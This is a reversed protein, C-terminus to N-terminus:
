NGNRWKKFAFRKDRYIRKDAENYNKGENFNHGYAKGPKWSKRKSVYTEDNEEEDDEEEEDEEEDNDYNSTGDVEQTDGEESHYLERQDSPARSRDRVRRRRNRGRQPRRFRFRRGRGPEDPPFVVRRWYFRVLGKHHQHCEPGHCPQRQGPQIIKNMVPRPPFGEQTGLNLFSGGGGGNDDYDLPDVRRMGPSSASAYMDSRSPHSPPLYVAHSKVRQVVYKKSSPVVYTAVKPTAALVEGVAPSDHSEASNLYITKPSAATGRVVYPSQATPPSYMPGFSDYDYDFDPYAYKERDRYFPDNYDEDLRRKTDTKKKKKKTAKTIKKTSLPLSTPPSTPASTPSLTGSFPTYPSKQIGIWHDTLDKMSLVNNRHNPHTRADNTSVVHFLTICTFIVQLVTWIRESERTAVGM